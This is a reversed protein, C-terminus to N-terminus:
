NQLGDGYGCELVDKVALPLKCENVQFPLPQLVAEGCFTANEVIACVFAGNFGSAAGSGRAGDGDAGFFQSEGALAIDHLEMRIASDNGYFVLPPLGFGM